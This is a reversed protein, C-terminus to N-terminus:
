AHDCGRLLLESLVIRVQRPGLVLRGRARAVIGVLVALVILGRHATLTTLLGETRALRLGVDGAVRLGEWLMLLVLRVVLLAVILAIGLGVTVDIPQRREDGASLRLMLRVLLIRLPLVAVVVLAVAEGQMTAPAAM